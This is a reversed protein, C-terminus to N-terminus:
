ETHVLKYVIVGEVQWEEEIKSWGFNAVETKPNNTPNCKESPLECVVFLQDTITAESNLPDIDTVGTGWQELFYQYADEYNREAIVALNFKEGGSENNIFEAVRMSRQLQNNPPYRLPNDQLNYVVLFLMITAVIWTGRIKASKILVESLGGLVLIPAAFIFGYYHDYIEQKYLGLGVLAFGFWVVLITFAAKTNDSLTARKKLYVWGLGTALALSIWAGLAIDRGAVVRTVIKSMLPWVGPLANWPRASVTTQRETFFVKMADFNIWGHRYDFVFLPSMLVLFVIGAITSYVIFTKLKKSKRFKLLSLLWVFGLSTALLLGLYHSQLVFAYSIGLGVLWRLEMKQWVRWVAYICLLAFFPMINPNWSSRSYIIITPAITYLLASVFAAYAGFWERAIFWVFWVTVAGLGAIMVAPGVPSYSFLWLFPAMLYYYLPGLYMNGISTGPGILFIDGYVLFRRVIIVDRGEDGLFTMYGSLNWFRLCVALVLIAALVWFEKPNKTKFELIKNIIIKIKAM